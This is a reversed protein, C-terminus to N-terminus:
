SSSANVLLVVKFFVSRAALGICYDVCYDANCSLAGPRVILHVAVNPIAVPVRNGVFLLVSFFTPQSQLLMGESLM